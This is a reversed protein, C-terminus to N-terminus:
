GLFHRLRGLLGRVGGSRDQSFGTRGRAGKERYAGDRLDPEADGDGWNSAVAAPMPLNSPLENSLIGRPRTLVLREAEQSGVRKAASDRGRSLKPPRRECDHADTALIHVCGEELMREAWYQAARGFAGTLSGSTIQMWVGAQVLRQISEYRSPVWTLREPHTLIPVYGAVLLGFFLDELHPPATHHPPEVLVYRSDCLSLLRGSQLGAVFDPVVHNDAGTVLRLPIGEQDLANQLEQIARRIQPGTNHYLGPLIHPTCAVVSVGDAAWAGAMELAVGLDAAGDDIGPLIHSHLDIMPKTLWLRCLRSWARDKRRQANSIFSTEPDNDARCRGVQTEGTLSGSAMQMWAWARALRQIAEYRQRVWTLREPHTLIPVFGAVLLNLFFGGLHPPATHHPPEVV